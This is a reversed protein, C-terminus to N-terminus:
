HTIGSFGLNPVAATAKVGIVNFLALCQASDLM